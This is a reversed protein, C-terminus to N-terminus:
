RVRTMASTSVAAPMALGLAIMAEIADIEAPEPMEIQGGASANGALDSVGIEEGRESRSAM